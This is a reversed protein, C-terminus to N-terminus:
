RIVLSSVFKVALLLLRSIILGIEKSDLSNPYNWFNSIKTEELFYLLDNAVGQSPYLENMLTGTDFFVWGLSVQSSSFNLYEIKSQIFVKAAAQSLTDVVVITFQKWFDLM